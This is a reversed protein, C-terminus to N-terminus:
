RIVFALASVLVGTLVLTVGGYVLKELPKLRMDLKGMGNNHNTTQDLIKDLKGDVHDLRKDMNSMHEEVKAIKIDQTTDKPQNM